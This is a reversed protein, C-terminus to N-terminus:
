KKYLNSLLQQLLGHKIIINIGHSWIQTPSTSVFAQHQDGEDTMTEASGNESRDLGMGHLGVCVPGRWIVLM